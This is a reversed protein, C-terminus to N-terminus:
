STSGRATSRSERPEVAVSRAATQVSLLVRACTKAGVWCRSVTDEVPERHCLPIRCSFGRTLIMAEAVKGKTDDIFTMLSLTTLKVFPDSDRTCRVANFRLSPAVRGPQTSVLTSQAMVLVVANFVSTKTTVSARGM